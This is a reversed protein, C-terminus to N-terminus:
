ASAPPPQDLFREADERSLNAALSRALADAVRRHRAVAAEDPSHQAALSHGKLAYLRFGCADARRVASEARRTAEPLNGMAVYTRALVLDLRCEQYPWRAGGADLARELDDQASTVDGQQAALRARWAYVIPAFGEPDYQLLPVADALGRRLADHDNVAWAARMLAVLTAVEDEKQDLQRVIRLAERAEEMAQGYRGLDVLVLSMHHRGRALGLPHDTERATAVTREALELGRRLNGTFHHIEVLNVRAVALPGLLGIREFIEASQEFFRRAEASQGKCLAVLGLGNYGYGLSREDRTAEGVALEEVWWRRASELDGRAWSIAALGNLPMVRLSADSAREALRLAEGLKAEAQHIDHEHRALAGLAAAARSQLRDDGVESALREAIGLGEPVEGWRGLHALADARRLLLDALLRDAEDLVITVRAAPELAVARRFCGEAETVFSRDLLRQGARVLYPYAKGPVGGLEFHFALSEVVLNPRRRYTRELAEALRRHARTREEPPVAAYLLERLRPQTFDVHEEAEAHRERVLGAEILADVGALADAEPLEGVDCLLSIPLEQRAIALTDAVRRALPPLGDMRRMVAERVSRPLPLTARAVGAEDLTLVREGDVTSIVGEELLGRLMEAIFAPNGEGEKHLRRALARAAPTDVVLSLVLEEVAAHALPDLPVRTPPVETRSGLALGDIAADAVGQTRTLLWLIPEKGLALTNRVLYELLEISGADAYQLDDVAFLRPQTGAVMERFAAFLAYREAGGEGGAGLVRELVPRPAIGEARLSQYVAVYAALPNALQRARIRNAPMGARRAQEVAYETLRSKGTGSGGELLIVAGQGERAAALGNTIAAIAEARAVIAPPWAANHAFPRHDAGLLVHLLHTASAFREGPEKQLLRLCVDELARPVAPVLERPPRPPRHLHKDLYGALTRANFPRRGTLLLYLVAGLSYLDTRADIREGNIQEPAIYAVTGLLEGHATLDTVGSEKVVGFDMLKATGDGLVMVNSPTVDRHILGRLHVYELARAVQIVVSRAVEFRDTPPDLQWADVLSRLDQGDVLEMVFYPRGEHTGWDYVQTINPHQLRSLARFERRFRREVEDASGGPNMVKLARLEGNGTDRAVYVTAMGGRGRPHLVEWRGLLTGTTIEPSLPQTNVPPKALM